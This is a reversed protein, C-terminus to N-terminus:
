IVKIKGVKHCFIIKIHRVKNETYRGLKFCSQVPQESIQLVQNIFRHGFEIDDKKREVSNTKTSETHNFTIISRDNEAIELTKTCFVKVAVQVAKISNTSELDM